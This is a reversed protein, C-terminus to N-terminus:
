QRGTLLDIVWCGRVHPGPGRCYALIAADSCGAEELADALIPLRDFAREEYIAEALTAITSSFSNLSLAVPLFPNGVVERLLHAQDAGDRREGNPALDAAYWSGQDAAYHADEQTIFFAARASHSTALRGRPRVRHAQRRAELRENDSALGDALREVVEVAARSRDDTMEHWVRRCCAVAFLRLKRASVRDHVFQLMQGPNNCALWEAETM